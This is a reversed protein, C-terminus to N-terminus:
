AKWISDQCQCEFNVRRAWIFLLDSLRNLYMIILKDFEATQKLEVCNRECRRCITRALHLHAALSHGGPLIFNTLKPLVEDSQDIWKELQVVNEDNLHPIDRNNEDCALCSGIVFLKNQIDNLASNLDEAFASGSDTKFNSVLSCCVGLMANLEDVSGYSKLRPHHKEVRKNGILGTQGEDGTKTYIKM